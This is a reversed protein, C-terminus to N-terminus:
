AVEGGEAKVAKVPCETFCILCGKCNDYDIRPTLDEDLSICADPCYIFCIMCRTCRGYDIVPTSSRWAGTRKIRSNGLNLIMSTSSSPELYPIEVIKATTIEERQTTTEIEVSPANRYIEEALRINAEVVEDRLGLEHMEDKVAELVSELGAVGLAKCALAGVGASIAGRRGLIRSASSSVDYAAVRYGNLAGVGGPTNIIIAGGKKLGQLPSPSTELLSTDAVVVADPHFIYGRGEIQEDSIRVFSSVHAGRREPGYMPSDQVHYGEHFAATGVVRGATKIGQGGRGHLRLELKM